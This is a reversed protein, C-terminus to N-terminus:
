PKPTAVVDSTWDPMVGDLYEPEIFSADLANIVLIDKYADQKELYPNGALAADTWTRAYDVDFVWAPLFRVDRAGGNPAKLRVYMLRGAWIDAHVREIAKDELTGFANKAIIGSKVAELIRDMPMFQPASAEIGTLKTNGMWNVALVGEDSVTVVLREFTQATDYKTVQDARGIDLVPIGDIERLFVVWYANCGGVTMSGTWCKAPTTFAYVLDDAGLKAKIDSAIQIAQAETTQLQVSNGRNPSAYYAGEPAPKMNHQEMLDYPANNYFMGGPSNREGYGVSFKGPYASGAIPFEGYFYNGNSAYTSIDVIQPVIKEPANDYWQRFMEVQAQADELTLTPDGSGPDPKWTGAKVAELDKQAPLLLYEQIFAKTMRGDYGTMEVGPVFLAAFAQAQAQTFDYLVGGHVKYEEFDAYTSLKADMKLSLKPSLAYEGKLSGTYGIEGAISAGNEKREKYGAGKSGIIEVEPTPQCATTFCTLLLLASLLAAALKASAGSTRRMFVGRIRKEATKRTGGEAMGLAPRAYSERAFLSLVLAAYAQKGRGDLRRVVECDCATEMDARMQGVALWAFPNFWYIANLACLLLVFLHDGRKIHTLEHRLIFRAQEDDLEALTNLPALVAGPFISAPAGEGRQGIFRVNKGLNCEVRVEEFLACLREPPPTALAKVRKRLFVALAALYAFGVGVGALWLILLIEGMSLTKKHADGAAGALGAQAPAAFAERTNETGTGATNEANAAGEADSLLVASKEQEFLANMAETEAAPLVILRVSSEFTVPLMLRALLLGWLAFHLFPSMKDKFVRKVLMISGYLIGSYVTIELLTELTKMM